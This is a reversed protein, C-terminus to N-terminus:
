VGQCVLHHNDDPTTVYRVINAVTCIRYLADPTPDEADAHRQLLIGITRQERLAQQAAAVSKPRNITIPAVVGPFLVINRVAIIITADDPIRITTTGQASSANATENDPMLSIGIKGPPLRHM